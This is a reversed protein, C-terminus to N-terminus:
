ADEGGGDAGARAVARVAFAARELRTALTDADMAALTAPLAALAAEYNGAAALAAIAPDLMPGLVAQWGEDAMMLVLADIDDKGGAAGDAGSAATAIAEYSAKLPALFATAALEPPFPGGPLAPAGSVPNTVAASKPGPASAVVPAVLLQEGDAPDPIGLRDAIVTAGVRGGM